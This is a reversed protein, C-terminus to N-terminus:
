GDQRTPPVGRRAEAPENPMEVDSAIENGWSAWGHRKRRAFLELYPGPTYDEVLVMNRNPVVWAGAGDTLQSGVLAPLEITTFPVELRRCHYKALELEQAHRQKYDFLVAHLAEGDGHMQYLLTVSDLGGSLLLVVKNRRLPSRGKGLKSTKSM